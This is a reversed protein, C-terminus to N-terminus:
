RIKLAVSAKKHEYANTISLPKFCDCKTPLVSMYLIKEFNVLGVTVQCLAACMEFIELTHGRQAGPIHTSAYIKKQSRMGKKTRPMSKRRATAVTGASTHFCASNASKSSLPLAVHCGGTHRPSHKRQLSEAKCVLISVEFVM